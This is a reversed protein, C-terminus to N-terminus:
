IYKWKFGGATNGKGRCVEGIHSGNIFNLKSASTISIYTDIINYNLDCKAVRKCGIHNKGCRYEVGTRNYGDIVNESCTVWELNSINNNSRNGDKHNIQPKNNINKIFTIGVLRHVLKPNYKGLRVRIYGNLLIELKLLKGKSFRKFEKKSDVYRDLSRVKGFTSVQYCDKYNPIDKWIEIKNNM